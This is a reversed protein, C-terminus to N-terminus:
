SRTSLTWIEETVRSDGDLDTTVRRIFSGLLSSAGATRAEVSIRVTGRAGNPLPITQTEERKGPRPHFLDDPWATHVSKQEFARAFGEAQSRDFPTLALASVQRRVQRAAEQVQIPHSENIKPRLRGQEDLLMPFMGDDPRNRELAALAELGPPADVEVALLRGDVRYGGAEPVFRIEYSRRTLVQAGGPLPRRLTRTLVMADAPPEFQRPTTAELSSLPLGACLVPMIAAAGALWVARRDRATRRM